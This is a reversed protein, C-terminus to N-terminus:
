GDEAEEGDVAASDLRLAAYGKALARLECGVEIRRVAPWLGGLERFSEGVAVALVTTAASRAAMAAAIESESCASRRLSSKWALGGRGAAAM